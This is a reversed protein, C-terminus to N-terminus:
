VGPSPEGNEIADSLATSSYVLAGDVREEFRLPMGPASRAFWFTSVENGETRTYRLCDYRGAPIEITEDAITTTALPMSAHGQFDLWRSRRRVPESTPAGDTTETWSEQEAGDADATVFRTVHVYPERGAEIVLARVTRGPRCGARIEDASFPTPHHDPRLVHPDPVNVAATYPPAAARSGPGRERGREHHSREHCLLGPNAPRARPALM